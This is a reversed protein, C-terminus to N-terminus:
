LLLTATLFIPGANMKNRNKGEICPRPRMVIGLDQATFIRMSQQDILFRALKKSSIMKLAKSHAVDFLPDLKCTFADIRNQSSDRKPLKQLGKLEKVLRHVKRTVKDKQM